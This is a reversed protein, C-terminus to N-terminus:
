AEPSERAADAELRRQLRTFATVGQELEAAPWQAGVPRDNHLVALTGDGYQVLALTGARHKLVAHFLVCKVGRGSM